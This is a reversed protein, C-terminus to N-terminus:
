EALTEKLRRATQRAIDRAVRRSSISWPNAFGISMPGSGLYLGTFEPSVSTADLAFQDVVELTVPDYVRLEARVAAAVVAFGASYGSDGVQAEAMPGGDVEVGIVEVLWTCQPPTESDEVDRFTKRLVYADFGAERLSSRLYGPLLREISAEPQGAFQGSGLVAILAREGDQLAYLSGSLLLLTATILLTRKM